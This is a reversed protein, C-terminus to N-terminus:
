FGEAQLLASDLQAYAREWTYTGAVQSANEILEKALGPSSKIRRVGAAIANPTPDVVLGAGTAEVLEVLGGGDRCVIVPRHWVMAELATLGYDERYAPAVVVSARDYARNRETDTLQGHITVPSASRQALFSRLTSTLGTPASFPSGLAAAIGLGDVRDSDVRTLMADFSRLSALRGGGGVLETKCDANLLHGAAIALETRKPWEHRSVCLVPGNANWRSASDPTECLPPADLISTTASTQWSEAIRQECEQSGALWHTVGEIHNQDVSRVLGTAQRHLSRDVIDTTEYLDSLEYFIRAQHYFLSLVRPHPALYTPPQTSLVLDYQSLDLQRVDHLLGMYNFFDPHKHWHLAADPQGWIPRPAQRGPLVVDHLDHGSSDLHGVLRSLLYEFGGAVGYDPKLVAIKM